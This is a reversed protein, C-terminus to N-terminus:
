GTASGGSITVAKCSRLVVTHPQLLTHNSSTFFSLFHSWPFRFTTNFPIPLLFSSFNRQLYTFWPVLDDDLAIYRLCPPAGKRLFNTYKYIKKLLTLYREPSITHCLVGYRSLFHKVDGSAIFLGNDVIM